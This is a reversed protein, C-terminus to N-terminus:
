RIWGPLASEKRAREELELQRAQIEREVARLQDQLLRTDPAPPEALLTSASRGGRTPRKARASGHQVPAKPHPPNAIRSRLRDAEKRLPRLQVALKEAEHRWYSEGHADEM